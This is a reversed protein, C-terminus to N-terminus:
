MTLLKAIDFKECFEQKALDFSRTTMGDCAEEVWDLTEVLNFSNPFEKLDVLSLTEDLFAVHWHSQKGIARWLSLHSESLPNVHCDVAVFPDNPRAKNPVFFLLFLLPGNSTRVLGAKLQLDFPTVSVLEKLFVRQDLWFLVVETGISPELTARLPAIGELGRLQPSLGSLEYPGSLSRLKTNHM